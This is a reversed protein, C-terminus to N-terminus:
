QRMHADSPRLSTAYTQQGLTRFIVKLITFANNSRGIDESLLERKTRFCISHQDFYGGNQLRRKMEVKLAILSSFKM